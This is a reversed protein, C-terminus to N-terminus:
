YLIYTACVSISRHCSAEDTWRSVCLTCIINLRCVCGERIIHNDIYYRTCRYEFLLHLVWCEPILSYSSGRVASARDLGVLDGCYGRSCRMFHLLVYLQCLVRLALLCALLAILRAVLCLQDHYLAHYHMMKEEWFAYRLMRPLNGIGHSANM